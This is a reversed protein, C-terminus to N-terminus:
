AEAFLVSWDEIWTDSGGNGILLVRARPTSGQYTLATAVDKSVEEWHTDDNDLNVFYKVIDNGSLNETSTATVTGIKNRPCYLKITQAQQIYAGPTNMSIRENTTDWNASTAGTDEFDTTDVDVISAGSPLFSNSYNLGIKGNDMALYLQLDDFKQIKAYLGAVDTAGMAADYVRIEDLYGTFYTTSYRGAWLATGVSSGITAGGSGTNDSSGNVYVTLNTGSKTFVVHQWKEATIATTATITSDSGGDSYILEVQNSANIRVAYGNTGTWKQVLYRIAGPLSDVKVALAITLNGTIQLTADDAVEIYNDSGNFTGAALRFGSCTFQSGAISSGYWTGYNDNGSCDPEFNYISSNVVQKLQGLTQHNLEFTDQASKYTASLEATLTVDLESRLLRSFAVEEENLFRREIKKIREQVERQWDYLIFDRYGFEYETTNSSARYSIKTIIFAGSKSRVADTLMVTEGPEVDFNLKPQFGKPKAFPTGHVTVLEQAYQRADAFTNLWPAQIEKFVEYYAAISTDDQYEVVIPRSFSYFFVPDTVSGDFVVQSDEANVTYTSAAVETGSVLIRMTGKPKHSLTFTTGTGTVTEQTAYDEFGGIVKVHNFFQTMDDDWSTIQINSGNTFSVGNNVNGRPEFYFNGTVSIRIQWQLLDMMDKIVDILYGKAIYKTLTIGSTATSAYTLSASYTNVVDQVIAEPSQSTYVQEVRINSLEFGDTLLNLKWLDSRQLETVKGNLVTTTGDSLKISITSGSTIDPDAEVYAEASDVVNDNTLEIVCEAWNLETTGRYLRLKEDTM